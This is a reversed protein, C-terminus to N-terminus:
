QGHRGDDSDGDAAEASWAGATGQGIPPNVYDLFDEPPYTTYLNAAKATDIASGGGVAVFADCAHRAPSRSRTSFRSTPRSSARETTCVCGRNQQRRAVRARDSNAGPARGDLRDRGAGTAVGLDVLDLGIERTVGPGFRISSAAMEFATDNTMAATTQAGDM